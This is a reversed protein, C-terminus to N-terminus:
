LLPVGAPIAASGMGVGFVAGLQVGGANLNQGGVTVWAADYRTYIGLQFMRGLRVM